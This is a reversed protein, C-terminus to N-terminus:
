QTVNIIQNHNTCFGNAHVSIEYSQMCIQIKGGVTWPCYASISCKILLCIHYGEIHVITLWNSLNKCLYIYSLHQRVVASYWLVWKGDAGWCVQTEWPAPRRDVGVRLEERKPKLQWLSIQKGSGNTAWEEGKRKERWREKEEVANM